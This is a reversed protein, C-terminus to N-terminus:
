QDKKKPSTSEDADKLDNEQAKIKDFKVEERM